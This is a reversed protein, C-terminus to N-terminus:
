REQIFQFRAHSRCLLRVTLASADSVDSLGISLCRSATSAHGRRDKMTELSGAALHRLLYIVEEKQDALGVISFMEWCWRITEM